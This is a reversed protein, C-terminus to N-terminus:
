RPPLFPREERRLQLVREAAELRQELTTTEVLRLAVGSLTMLARGKEIDRASTDGRILRAAEALVVEVDEALRFRAM